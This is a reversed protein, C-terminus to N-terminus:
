LIYNEKIYKQYKNNDKSFDDDSLLIDELM